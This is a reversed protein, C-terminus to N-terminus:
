FTREDDDEAPTYRLAYQARRETEAKRAQVHKVMDAATLVTLSFIASGGYIHTKGTDIDRVELMKAGFQEVEAIAGYHSRHGFIEVFAFRTTDPIPEASGNAADFISAFDSDM